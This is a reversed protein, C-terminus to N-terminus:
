EQVRSDRQSRWNRKQQSLELLDETPVFGIFVRGSIIKGDKNTMPTLSPIQLLARLMTQGSPLKNLLRVGCLMTEQIGLNFSTHALINCKVASKIKSSAQWGPKLYTFNASMGLLPGNGPTVPVNFFDAFPIHSDKTDSENRDVEILLIRFPNQTVSAAMVELPRKLSLLHSGSNDSNGGNLSDMITKEFEKVVKM